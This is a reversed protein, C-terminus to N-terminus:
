AIAEVDEALVPWKRGHSLVLYVMGVEPFEAIEMVQGVLSSHDM